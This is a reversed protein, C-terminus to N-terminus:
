VPDRECVEAISPTGTSDRLTFIHIPTVEDDDYITLTKAIPDILTRNKEFKLLVEVISQVTSLSEGTSGVAAHDAIAEDWVTDSIEEPSLNSAGIAYRETIAQAVGSDSRYVYSELPDMTTFNYKYFGDGVESMAADTVVLTNLGAEVLWIRITVSLGTAPVGSTTVFTTILDDM